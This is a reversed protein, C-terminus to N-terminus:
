MANNMTNVMGNSMKFVRDVMSSSADRTEGYLKKSPPPLPRSTRVIRTLSPGPTSPCEASRTSAGSGSAM